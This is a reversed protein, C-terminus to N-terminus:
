RERRCQPMCRFGEPTSVCYKASPGQSITGRPVMYCVQSLKPKSSTNILQAISGEQAPQEALNMSSGSEMGACGTVLLAALMVRFGRIYM